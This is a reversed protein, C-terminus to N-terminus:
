DQLYCHFKGEYFFKHMRMDRKWYSKITLLKIIGMYLHQAIWKRFQFISINSDEKSNIYAVIFGIQTWLLLFIDSASANRPINKPTGSKVEEVKPVVRLKDN